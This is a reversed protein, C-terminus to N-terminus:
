YKLPIQIQYRLIPEKIGFNIDIMSVVCGGIYIYIGAWYQHLHDHFFTGFTLIVAIEREGTGELHDLTRSHLYTLASTSPQHDAHLFEPHAGIGIM